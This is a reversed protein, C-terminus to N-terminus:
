SRSSVIRQSPELDHKHVWITQSALAAPWPSTSGTRTQVALVCTEKEDPDVCSKPGTTTQWSQGAHRSRITAQVHAPSAARSQGQHPRKKGRLREPQQPVVTLSRSSVRRVDEGPESATSAPKRAAQEAARQRASPPHGSRREVPQTEGGTPGRARLRAPLRGASGTM